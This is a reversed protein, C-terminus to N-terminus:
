LRSWLRRARARAGAALAAEDVHGIRGRRMVWRGNIMASDVAADGLGFFVHGMVTDATLPTPPDYDLLLLDAAHDVAIRGLKVGFLREALTRNGEFLLHFAAGMGVRPDQRHHSHLLHCARVEDWMSNSMGDTGLALHVGESQLAALDIAGVSNNMNSRPQHSVVSGSEAIRRADGDGLHIAHALITRPGLVGAQALREVASVGHRTRADALDTFAECCHIHVGTGLAQAAEASECLTRDGVTFQAHLGFLGALMSGAERQVRQLFRVNEAIGAKAIKGGDRDSVEYCTAFRVGAEQAAGALEDLSGAIAHPSAHHDIVTTTGARIGALLPVLASPRLDGPRLAKDLKWWLRQLIEDFNAPPKGPIAMGRAFTSYLHMHANILGPMMVRGEADVRKEEPHRKALAAATGVARIMGGEVLVAGDPIVRGKEDFTLITANTILM